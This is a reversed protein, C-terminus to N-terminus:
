NSDKLLFSNFVKGSKLYNSLTSKKINLGLNILYKRCSKISDFNLNYGILCPDVLTNGPLIELTVPISRRTGKDYAFNRYTQM